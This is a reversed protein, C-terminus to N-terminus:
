IDNRFAFRSKGDRTRSPLVLAKPLFNRGDM